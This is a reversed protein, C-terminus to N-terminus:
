EETFLRVIEAFSAPAYFLAFHDGDIGVFDSKKVLRHLRKADRFPVANDQKAAIILTKCGIKRAYASLDQNVVKIFTSKLEDRPAQYDASGSQPKVDKKLRKKIKYLRIKCWRALSFRRLGAPAFLAIRNVLEPYKVALVMAVRCGFSHAVIAVDSLKLGRLFDATQEAYDFVTFGEKPPLPSNGFGAFDIMINLYQPLREAVSKFMDGSAGWGHLYLIPKGQGYTQYYLM